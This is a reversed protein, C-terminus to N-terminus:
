LQKFTFQKHTKNSKNPNLCDYITSDDLGHKRAFESINTHTEKHGDPFTAEFTVTRSTHKPQDKKHIWICNTTSYPKNNDIRELSTNESGIVDALQKYSKYMKDYFDIFYRFENSHINRKSYRNAAHYNENTTRTRMAQWRRYFIPDKTKFGKGCAKHTTGAKRRITSSLMEKKRGCIQCQMVYLKVRNKHLHKHIHGICKLDDVIDGIKIPQKEKPM